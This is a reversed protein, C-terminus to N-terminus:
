WDPGLTLKTCNRDTRIRYLGSNRNLRHMFAIQKCKRGYRSFIQLFNSNKIEWLQTAVRRLHRPYGWVPKIAFKMLKEATYFNQFDNFIQCLHLWNSPSSKKLCHLELRAYRGNLFWSSGHMRKSVTWELIWYIRFNWRRLNVPMWDDSMAFITKPRGNTFGNARHYRDTTQRDTRDIVHYVTAWCNPM